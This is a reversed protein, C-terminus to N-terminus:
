PERFSVGATVHRIARRQRRLHLRYPTSGENGAQEICFQRHRAIEVPGTPDAGSFVYQSGLPHSNGIDPKPQRMCRVVSLKDAVQATRTLRETFEM